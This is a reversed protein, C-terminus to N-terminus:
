NLLLLASGISPPASPSSGGHGDDSLMPVDANENRRRGRFKGKESDVWVSKLFVRNVLGWPIGELAGCHLPRTLSIIM